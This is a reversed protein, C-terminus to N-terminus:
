CTFNDSISPLKYDKTVYKAKWTIVREEYTVNLEQCLHKIDGKEAIEIMQTRRHEYVDRGHNFWERLATDVNIACAHAETLPANKERLYCHLMKICSQDVLAGVHGKLESHYVSKRKLFEFDDPPLYDILESEKDPMTYVQGYEALFKSIGLITFKDIGEKVSGANDDGYTVLKVNDRFNLRTAFTKAPYQKYFYARLNLSGCIGNIIVTLSNGSIHTGETLGILDGNYAIVAFVIDGAMASMIDLDEQAYNCEKAFDIMIRLAALILQSPLKQDYKGYDGGILRNEGFTFIHQHLAEWEPGHSNVGVACESLLPNMQLVRLIPLFYKRILWTLAISNGYFIRCKPKSLVEDKKCAKAIPYARENNRYCDECRAIEEMIEPVLERNNPKDPTPPLEVIFNRKKGSLPFGIATDLKIADMFKMGPVGCLNQYDTLPMAGNWLPKRFIPLLDSKYDFVAIQLLEAEFPLAPVALNALCTQWGKYQPFQIPPGFINPEGTVETVVDTILTPKVRSVFTSMGPCSGYYEVQSNHPMFNLPSKPHLPVDSLVNVGLVQRDFKEATGTLLVGEVQSLDLIAKDIVSKKMTGSCGVPKNTIGGLHVSSVIARRKCVLPAGCLGKFTNMTLNDYRLGDFDCVGNGTRTSTALGSATTLDGSTSRWLMQFEHDPLVEDSLYKTLDKFSGGSSAYCVRLDTGPLLISLSKSLRVAFKGGSKTPNEKRFTVNLEKDGFYHNPIVVVNSKLFLGNVTLCKLGLDVTGSVLNKSVLGILQDSTTNVASDMVPLPRTAVGTWVDQELDREIIDTVTVPELSGQPNIGRYARYVRALAYVVGLLATAKCVRGVHKDRIEAFMPAITNRDVLEKQFGRKVIHVMAKQVGLGGIFLSSCASICASKGLRRSQYMSVGVVSWLLSTRFMYNKKLRKQDAFMIINQMMKSELWDSPLISVWDWRKAFHKASAMIAVTCATEIANDLGFLDKRVRNAVLTTANQCSEIIAEGFQEELPETPLKTDEFLHSIDIHSGESVLQEIQDPDSSWDDPKADVNFDLLDGEAVFKPLHDHVDCYGHIQKCGDHNCLEINKRKKMRELIFEQAILHDSYQEIVFQLVTRFSVGKLVQGRFSLPAYTASASLNAPKVAREVTLHWIDDFTPEVGNKKYFEAVKTSDIGQTRGDVIYQFEPKAEVTIVVHMRRQISYPCQSYVRADLDKVNTTVLVITPEVFIKGKSDLDAMNAYFPQNNCVDIIVRTPPREVFDSKDNAMDDITLVLKDTTWNSMFKDAANYGARRDKSISLKASSLLADIIQDGYTSKGQSSEGFLEIVFPARRIGSSIKMTVYDNKVKLLRMFKDQLLKKEFSKRTGLLNRIRCLLTELRNDFENDPIGVVKMLNGNKVLDWWLVVTAYEEDMEAAARDNVLFPRLSKERWSLSMSEVFFVVTQLGADMLDFANAHLLSLDPEWVRFDKITLTVDSSQCLGLTVLLGLLKSFHSFLKNDKILAWNDRANRMLDLWDVKWESTFEDSQAEIGPAFIERIYSMVTSTVSADLHRRVYLFIASTMSVYDTCGQITIFLAAICEIESVYEDDLTVDALKCLDGLVSSLKELIAFSELPCVDAIPESADPRMQMDDSSQHVFFKHDSSSSTKQVRKDKNRKKKKFDNRESAKRQRSYPSLSYVRDDVYEHWQNKFGKQHTIICKRAFRREQLNIDEQAISQQATIRATRTPYVDGKVDSVGDYYPNRISASHEFHSTVKKTQCVGTTISVEVPFSKALLHSSSRPTECALRPHEVFAPASKFMCTQSDSSESMRPTLGSPIISYTQHIKM